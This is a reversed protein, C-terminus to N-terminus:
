KHKLPREREQRKELILNILPMTIPTIVSALILWHFENYSVDEKGLFLILYTLWTNFLLWGLVIVAIILATM